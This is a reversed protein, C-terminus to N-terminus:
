VAKSAVPEIEHIRSLNMGIIGEAENRMFM